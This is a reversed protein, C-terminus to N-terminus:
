LYFSVQTPGIREVDAGPTTEPALPETEFIDEEPRDEEFMYYDGSRKASFLLLFIKGTRLQLNTNTDSTCIAPLSTLLKLCNWEPM